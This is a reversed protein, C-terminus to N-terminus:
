VQCVRKSDADPSRFVIFQFDTIVAPAKDVNTAEPKKIAGAVCAAGALFAGALFAPALFGALFGAAL